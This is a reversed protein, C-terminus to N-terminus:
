FRIRIGINHNNIVANASIITWGGLWAKRLPSPLFHAIVVQGITTTSFYLDIENDSPYKGLYNNKECYNNDDNFEKTQFYDLTKFGLSTGLLVKDAKSWPDHHACSTLLLLLLFVGIIPPALHACSFKPSLRRWSVGGVIPTESILKQKNPM